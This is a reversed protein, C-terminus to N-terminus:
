SLLPVTKGLSLITLVNEFSVDTLNDSGGSENILGDVDVPTANGFNEICDELENIMDLISDYDFIDSYMTSSTENKQRVSYKTSETKM